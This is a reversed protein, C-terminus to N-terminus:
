YKKKYPPPTTTLHITQPTLTPKSYAPPASAVSSPTPPSTPKTPTSQATNSPKSLKIVRRRPRLRTREPLDEVANLSSFRSPTYTEEEQTNDRERLMARSIMHPINPPANLDLTGQNQGIQRLKTAAAACESSTAEPVDAALAGESMSVSNRPHFHFPSSEPEKHNIEQSLQYLMDPIDERFSENLRQEIEARIFSAIGPMSDFTSTIKVSELPDNRFVLTLGKARSYVLIIIASLKIDSLEISLPLELSRSAAVYGPCVFKLLGRPQFTLNLPNAQVKTLLKLRADGSYELKFIGRFKDEALDGIELIELDPPVTGFDLEDVRIDDIIVEPTPGKNMTEMMVERAQSYLAEQDFFRWNFLFSM